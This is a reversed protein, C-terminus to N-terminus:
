KNRWIMDKITEKTNKLERYHWLRSELSKLNLRDNLECCTTAFIGIFVGGFIVWFSTWLIQGVNGMSNWTYCKWIITGLIVVLMSISALLYAKWPYIVYWPAVTNKNVIPPPPPLYSDLELKDEISKVRASLNCVEAQWDKDRMPHIPDM